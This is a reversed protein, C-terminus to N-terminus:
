KIVKVAIGGVGLRLLVFSWGVTSPTLAGLGLGFEYGAWFCLALSALLSLLAVIFDTM